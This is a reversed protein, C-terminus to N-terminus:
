PLSAVALPCRHGPSCGDRRTSSWISADRRSPMSTLAPPTEGTGGILRRRTQPAPQCRVVRLGDQIVVPGDRPVLFLNSAQRELSLEVATVAAPDAIYGDAPSAEEVSPRHWSLKDGHDVKIKVQRHWIGEADRAFVTYYYSAEGSAQDDRAGCDPSDSVLTQDGGPLADAMEAFGRDSRLM